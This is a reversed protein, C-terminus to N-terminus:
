MNIHMLIQLVCCQQLIQTASLNAGDKYPIYIIHGERDACHKSRGDLNAYQQMQSKSVCTVLERHRTLSWFIKTQHYTLAETAVKNIYHHRCHRSLFDAQAKSWAGQGIRMM